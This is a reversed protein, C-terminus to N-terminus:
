TNSLADKIWEKITDISTGQEYFRSYKHPQIIGDIIEVYGDLPDPVVYDFYEGESRSKPEYIFILYEADKKLLPADKVVVTKNGVTGGDQELRVTDGKTFVGKLSEIVRVHISTFIRETDSDSLGLEQRTMSVAPRVDTVQAIIINDTKEVMYEFTPIDAWDDEIELVVPDQSPTHDADANSGAPQDSDDVVGNHCAAMVMIMAIILLMFMTRKM